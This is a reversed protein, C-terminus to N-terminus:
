MSYAQLPAATSDLCTLEARVDKVFSINRFSFAPFVGRRRIGAMEKETNKKKESEDIGATAKDDKGM